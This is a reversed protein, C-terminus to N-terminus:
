FTHGSRCSKRIVASRVNSESQEFRIMGVLVSWKPTNLCEGQFVNKLVREFEWIDSGSIKKGSRNM